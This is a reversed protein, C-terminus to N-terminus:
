GQPPPAPEPAGTPAPATEPVGTPAAAGVPARALEFRGGGDQNCTVNDLTNITCTASRRQQTAVSIWQMTVTNGAVSYNGQALIENTATFRSTFSGRDFNAVFVGDTSSWMGDMPTTPVPAPTQYFGTQCAGVLLAATLLAGRTLGLIM